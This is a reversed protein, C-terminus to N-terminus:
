RIPAAYQIGGDKWLANLGRALGIPTDPGVNRNFSEGYNGINKIIQYAWDKTLGIPTGFDGEVGLLRKISPNDSGLMEDVNAQTVGLEEAELLAFYTWRNINFWLDDGQRVVPGLPEKSIIEPLIIYDDPNAFKSREAALASSDTTYVDCRGDEFAKVVEDQDVFVIPKYELNNAAFYDAANLETTTGSEICINAGSLDLASAIGDSKRVMFGQGDYFVTGIFKIGLQTDRSMTWTTTRSLIDIEGSSLATFREQSTLPTYRVKSPDNFIASAVARCFDVELGSWNNNADPASFGAVGGTVGCQIYGKAKVDSLTDASAATVATAGLVAAVVASLIHKHM